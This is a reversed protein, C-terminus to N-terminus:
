EEKKAEFRWYDMKFLNGSANGHFTFYIDHRGQTNKVNETVMRWNDWAGTAPVEVRGLM